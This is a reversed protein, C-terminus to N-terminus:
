IFPVHLTTLTVIVRVTVLVSPEILIWDFVWIVREQFWLTRRVSRLQIKSETGRLMVPIGRLPVTWRDISLCIINFLNSMILAPVSLWLSVLRGLLSQFCSRLRVPCTSSRRFCPSGRCMGSLCIRCLLWLLWRVAM